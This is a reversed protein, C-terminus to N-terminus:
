PPTRRRRPLEETRAELDKLDRAFQELAFSLTALRQAEEPNPAGSALRTVLRAIAQHAAAGTPPASRNALAEGSARLIEGAKDSFDALLPTLSERQPAELPHAAVRGILVLDHYLRRLTRPIAAVDTDTTLLSRREREAEDAAAELKDFGSQIAAHQARVADRDVPQTLGATLKALLDALLALVRGAQAGAVAYARAPLVILSVVLGVVGGLIVELIRLLAAILPTHQPSPTGLLLITATMPAVRFTPNLAALLALPALTIALAIGLAVPNDHPVLTAVAAGYLAGSLTGALRDVTAKVSGGVSAQTVLVATFVAWYGQPLNLLSALIYSAVGAATIRLGLRLEAQRRRLWLAARANLVNV